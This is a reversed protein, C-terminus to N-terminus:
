FSYNKAYELQNDTWNKYLDEDLIIEIDPIIWTWDIWTQTKWSFWKAITYKLSSNDYYIDLSQVSWKGYSNEWIIKLNKIYDKLTLAMIESASATWNNILVIINRNQFNLNSGLSVINTILNKYKIVAIPEWNPVFFNMMNTIEDLSWWPNNRLDIIIKKDWSDKSIDNLIKIFDNYINNSFLIIKIYHDWSDLLKYNIYKINIVERTVIVIINEEKRKITLQVSTWAKWKIKNVANDLSINEDVLFDDIKIIQDGSKLWAKEAPSWFIPSVIKLIWPSEMEVHAWIWEFQWNLKDTFNQSEKSTFYSSYKDQTSDVMWKIAWRILDEDVFMNSNYHNNKLKLYVDNLISFNSVDTIKKYIKNDVNEENYEENHNSIELLYEMVTFFKSLTLKKWSSYEIDIEFNSHVMKYFGDETAHKNLNLIIKKNKILNLYVWKQLANYISTNPKINLFELKIYKYSDPLWEWIINFYLIFLWNITLTKQLQSESYSNKNLFNFDEQASVFCFNNFIIFISLCISLFNRM